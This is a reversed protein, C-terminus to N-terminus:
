QVPLSSVIQLLYIQENFSQHFHRYNGDAKWLGLYYERHAHCLPGVYKKPQFNVGETNKQTLLDTM